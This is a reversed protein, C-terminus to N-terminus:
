PPLGSIERRLETIANNCSASTLKPIREGDFMLVALVAVKLPTMIGSGLRFESCGNPHWHYQPHSADQAGPHHDFRVGRRLTILSDRLYDDQSASIDREFKWCIEYRYHTLEYPSMTSYREEIHLHADGNAEKPGPLRVVQGSCAGPDRFGVDGNEEFQEFFSARDIELDALVDQLQQVATSIHKWIRLRNANDM